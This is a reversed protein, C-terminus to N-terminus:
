EGGVIERIAWTFDRHAREVEKAAGGTRNYAALILSDRDCNAPVMRSIENALEALEGAIRLLEAQITAIGTM